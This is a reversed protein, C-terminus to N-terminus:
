DSRLDAAERGQGSTEVGARHDRGHPIRWGAVAQAANLPVELERTGLDHHGHAVIVPVGALHRHVVDAFGDPPPDRNAPDADLDQAPDGLADM